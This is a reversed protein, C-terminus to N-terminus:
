QRQPEYYCHKTAFIKLVIDYILNNKYISCIFFDVPKMYLNLYLHLFQKQQHIILTVSFKSLVRKMAVLLSYFGAIIVRWVM